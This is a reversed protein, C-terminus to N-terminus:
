ARPSHLGLTTSPARESVESAAADYPHAKELDEPESPGIGKIGVVAGSESDQSRATSASKRSSGLRSSGHLSRNLIITM